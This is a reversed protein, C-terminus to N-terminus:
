EAERASAMQEVLSIIESRLFAVRGQTITFPKPFAGAAVLRRLTSQSTNGYLRGAEAWGCCGLQSRRSRGNGRAKTAKRTAKM